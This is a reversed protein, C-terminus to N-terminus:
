SSKMRKAKGGGGGGGRAPRKGGGYDDDDFDSDDYGGYVLEADKGLLRRSDSTLRLNAGDEENADDREDDYVMADKSERESATTMGFADGEKSRLRKAKDSADEAEQVDQSVGFIDRHIIKKTQQDNLRQHTQQSLANLVNETGIVAAGKSKANSRSSQSSLLQREKQYRLWIEQVTDPQFMVSETVTMTSGSPTNTSQGSLPKLLPLPRLPRIFKLSMSHATNTSGSASDKSSESASPIMSGNINLGAGVEVSDVKVRQGEVAVSGFRTKRSVINSDTLKSSELNNNTNSNDGDDFIVIPTYAVPFIFTKASNSEVLPKSRTHSHVPQQFLEYGSGDVDEDDYISDIKPKSSALLRAKAEAEEREKALAAERMEKKRRQDEIMQNIDLGQFRQLLPLPLTEAVSLRSLISSASNVSGSNRSHSIMVTRVPPMASAKNNAENSVPGVSDFVFTTRLISQRLLELQSSSMVPARVIAALTRDESFGPCLM